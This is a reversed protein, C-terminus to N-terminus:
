QIAMLSCRWHTWMKSKCRVSSRSIDILLLIINNTSVCLRGMFRYMLSRLVAHFTSVGVGIFLQSASTWRPMRLLLRMGDNYAVKLKQLTSQRYQRWLHATYLPTCFAKFLAVKVPVSCMRFKRLLMNAQAYVLRRQRNIDMDDTLDDTIYHGLYKVATCIRLVVGSLFFDPLVLKQDEKTRVIMINSKLANYQIDYEQGYNSCTRLLQQLGASCPSFIVLDDAYMLHNIITGGVVCGTGCQQLWNSLDDMYVNFLLPSLISGQRIGNSIKFPASVCNGWRVYMLQHTYWFSLIRVISGPVGRNHLKHFLKDHNVRDFAKSADIFCMFITSNHRNYLDLIEKLAFICMDPGHQSKFGFQNESTLLFLEIKNLIIKELVKSLVSALAIPRYNDRNNIKGAKDKLIPVLIVALLSDPLIGHVVFANFCLALLPFLKKSSFKLHEASIEDMGCAKNNKQSMVADYTEHVSVNVDEDHAISDM